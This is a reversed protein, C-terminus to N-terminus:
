HAISRQSGSREEACSGRHKLELRNGSMQNVQLKLPGLCLRSLLAICALQSLEETRKMFLQAPSFM